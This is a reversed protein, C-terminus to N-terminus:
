KEVISKVFEEIATMNNAVFAPQSNISLLAKHKNVIEITYKKEHNVRIIFKDNASEYDNKIDINDKDGLIEELTEDVRYERIEEYDEKMRKLIIEQMSAPLISFVFDQLSEKDGKDEAAIKLIECLLEEDITFKCYNEGYEQSIVLKNEAYEITFRHNQWQNKFAKIAGETLFIKKDLEKLIEKLEKELEPFKAYIYGLIPAVLESVKVPKLFDIGLQMTEQWKCQIWKCDVNITTTVEGKLISWKYKLGNFFKKVENVLVSNVVKPLYM